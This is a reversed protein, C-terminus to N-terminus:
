EGFFVNKRPHKKAFRAYGKAAAIAEKKTAYDRAVHTAKGNKVHHIDYSYRGKSKRVSRLLAIGKDRDGYVWTVRSSPKVGTKSAVVM